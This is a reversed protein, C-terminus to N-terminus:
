FSAGHLFLHNNRERGKCLWFGVMTGNNNPNNNHVVFILIPKQKV